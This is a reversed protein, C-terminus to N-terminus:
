KINLLSDISICNWETPILLLFLILLLRPFVFQMDWMPRILSFTLAVFVLNLALLILGISTFLGFILLLGGSLETMSAFWAGLVLLFRPIGKNSLPLEFTEVVNNMKIRFLADYGQFFFLIGLFVRAVFVAIEKNYLSIEM